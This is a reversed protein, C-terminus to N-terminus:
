KVETVTRAPAAGTVLELEVMALQVDAITAVYEREVDVFERRFVLVETWSIKGAEFSRQLLDLNEPLRGMVQAQLSAAAELAANYRALTAGVERKVQLELAATEAAARDHSATAEAIPGQRRNLIPIGLRIGGGVIRDTGEETSYSGWATLNPVRERRVRDIRVRAAETTTRFAQLDLRQELATSLGDAVVMPVRPPMELRGVPEPPLTPDLAITEALITRAVLYSGEALHVQREARGVQALALNVEMQPAAGADFRKRAVDALSRALETNSREIALLDRAQLALAFAAKVDATLLQEERTYQRRAADLEASKEDSRLRRQGGIELEQSLSVSKDTVSETPTHRRGAELDIEPNFPFTRAELLRGEAEGLAARRARLGPSHALAESVAQDLTLRATPSEAASTSGMMLVAFAV